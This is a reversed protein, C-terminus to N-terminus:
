LTVDKIISIAKKILELSLYKKNSKIIIGGKKNVQLLIDNKLIKIKDIPLHLNTINKMNNDDLDGFLTLQHIETDVDKSKKYKIQKIVDAKFKIDNLAEQTFVIKYCNAVIFTKLITTIAQKKYKGSIIIIDDIIIFENNIFREFEKTVLVNNQIVEVLFHERGIYEGIITTENLQKVNNFGEQNNNDIFGNDEMKQLIDAIDSTTEFKWCECNISKLLELKM